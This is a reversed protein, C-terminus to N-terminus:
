LALDLEFRQYRGSIALQHNQDNTLGNSTPDWGAETAAAHLEVLDADTARDPLDLWREPDLGLETAIDGAAGGFGGAIFVPKGAQISMITEEIVGPMRGQYGSRAGGLVVRGDTNATMYSRLGTLARVTTEQDIDQVGSERRVGPQDVVNGDADLYVYRGLLGMRSRHVQIQEAALPAHVPLPVCGILARNRVGHKECEHILFATYGEPELHGGYTIRGRAILTARAVEGLAMKVHTETLGLRALDPSESVSVGLNFGPKPEPLPQEDV